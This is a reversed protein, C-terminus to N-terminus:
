LQKRCVESRGKDITAVIIGEAEKVRVKAGVCFKETSLHIWGLPTPEVVNSVFSHTIKFEGELTNATNAESEELPQLFDSITEPVCVGLVYLPSIHQNKPIKGNQFVWVRRARSQAAGLSAVNVCWNWSTRGKNCGQFLHSPPNRRPHADLLILKPRLGLVRERAYEIDVSQSPITFILINNEECGHHCPPYDNQTFKESPWPCCQTRIGMTEMTTRVQIWWNAGGGLFWVCLRDSVGKPIERVMRKEVFQMIYRVRDPLDSPLILSFDRLRGRLFWVFTDVVAIYDLGFELFERAPDSFIRRSLEDCLKNNQSSIYCPFITFNFEIELRNLCRAFFQAVRNGPKRFKIWTVVNTNDGVYALIKGKYHPGRECLFCLFSIFESLAILEFDSEPLGTMEALKLLCEKFSFVTGKHNTYDVAACQTMTSDSGVWVLKEGVDPFSLREELSLAGAMDTTYTNSWYSATSMHIRITEVSTWFDLYAQRVERM